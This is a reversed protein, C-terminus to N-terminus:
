QKQYISSLNEKKLWESFGTLPSIWITHPVNIDFELLGMVNYQITGSRSLVGVLEDNGARYVGGGSNGVTGVVTTLWFHKGPGQGKAFLEGSTRVPPLGLPCGVTYLGSFLGLSSLLDEPAVKVVPLQEVSEFSFMVWDNDRHLARVSAPFSLYPVADVYSDIIIGTNTPVAPAEDSVLLHAASLVYNVFVGDKALSQLVVGSGYGELRDGQLINVRVTANLIHQVGANNESLQVVVNEACRFHDDCVVKQM